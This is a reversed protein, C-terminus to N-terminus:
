EYSGVERQIDIWQKIDRSDWGVSRRGLPISRPFRGAKIDAYIASRSKKTLNIVEPLKLILYDMNVGLHQPEGRNAISRLM